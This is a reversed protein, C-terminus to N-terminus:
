LTRSVGGIEANGTINGSNICSEITGSSAYGVVGGIRSISSQSINGTSKIGKLIAGSTYGFIGIGQDLTNPITWTQIGINYGNGNYTGAFYPGTNNSANTMYGIPTFSAVGTVNALQVVTEGSMANGENVHKSFSKLATANGITYNKIAIGETTSTAGSESTIVATATMDGFDLGLLNSKRINSSATLNSLTLSRNDTATNPSYEYIVVPTNNGKAVKLEIMSIGEGATADITINTNETLKPNNNFSLTISVVETWQAYLTIEEESLATITTDNENTCYSTGTGNALTNWGSFTYGTRTFTNTNIATASNITLPQNAMTGTGLNSNFVIEATQDAWIAYLTMDGAPTITQEPEYEAETASSNTSWGIIKKGSKTFITRALTTTSFGSKIERVENAEEGGNADYTIAYTAGAVESFAIIEAYNEDNYVQITIEYGEETIVSLINNTTDKAVSSVWSKANLTTELSTIFPEEKTREIRELREAMIDLEIEEYYKGKQTQVRANEARTLIGNSGSILNLSVGALILL